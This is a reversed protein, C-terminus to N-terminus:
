ACAGQEFSLFNPSLRPSRKNAPPANPAASRAATQLSAPDNNASHPLGIGADFGIPLFHMVRHLVPNENGPVAAGAGEISDVSYCARAFQEARSHVRYLDAHGEGLGAVVIASSEIMLAHAIPEPNSRPLFGPRAAEVHWELVDSRGSYITLM